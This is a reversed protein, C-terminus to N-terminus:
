IIRAKQIKRIHGFAVAIKAGEFDANKNMSEFSHFTSCGDDEYIIFCGKEMKSQPGECELVFGATQKTVGYKKAFASIEEPTYIDHSHINDVVKKRLNGKLNLADITAILAAKSDAKLYVTTRFEKKM